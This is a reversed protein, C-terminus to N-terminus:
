WCILVAVINELCAEGFTFRCVTFTCPFHL